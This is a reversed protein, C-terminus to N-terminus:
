KKGNGSIVTTNQQQLSQSPQHVEVEIIPPPPRPPKEAKEPKPSASPLEAPKTSEVTLKPPPPRPPPEAKSPPEVLIKPPPPRPPKSIKGGARPSAPAPPQPAQKKKNKQYVPSPTPPAISGPRPSPTRSRPTPTPPKPTLTAPQQNIVHSLRKLQSPENIYHPSPQRPKRTPPTVLELYHHEPEYPSQVQKRDREKEQRRKRMSDLWQAKKQRIVKVQYRERKRAEAEKAKQKTVRKITKTRPKEAEDQWVARDTERSLLFQAKCCALCLAWGCGAIEYILRMSMALSLFNYAVTYIVYVGLIGAVTTGFTTFFNFIPSFVGLVRTRWSTIDVVGEPFMNSPSVVDDIERIDSQKGLKNLLVDRMHSYWIYNERKEITEREYLGGEDMNIHDYDFTIKTRSFNRDITKPPPLYQFVPAGGIWKNKTTRFKPTFTTSCPTVIGFPRLQHHIPDLFLLQPTGGPIIKYVPLEEYCNTTKRPVVHTKKCMFTYFSDGGTIAFKGPSKVEDFPWVKLGSEKITQEQRFAEARYANDCESELLKRFKKKMEAMTFKLLWQDKANSFKLPSVDAPHIPQWRRQEPLEQVFIDVMDTEYVEVGCRFIKNKLSLVIKKETDTMLVTASASKVVQAEFTTLSHVTCSEESGVEWFFTGRPTECQRDDVHCPLTYQSRQAHLLGNEWIVTDEEINIDHYIHVVAADVITGDVTTSTGVCEIHGGDSYTSGVLHYKIQSSGRKSISYTAGNYGVFLGQRAMRKCAERPVTMRKHHYNQDFVEVSHDSDGCQIVTRTEQITCRIATHRRTLTEQLLVYSINAADVIEEHQHCNDRADYSYNEINTPDSCDWAELEPEEANPWPIRPLPELKPKEDEEGHFYKYAEYMDDPPPRITTQDVPYTTAITIAYYAIVSACLTWKTM